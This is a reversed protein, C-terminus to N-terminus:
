EEVFGRIAKLTNPNERLYEALKEFRRLTSPHVHHEIGETDTYATRGDVGLMSLLESIVQHRKIVSRAIKEGSATLRMGRYREHELYGKRALNVVMSSVTPPKVGLRESIDAASVYGKETNLNYIAELYDELRSIDRKPQLTPAATAM